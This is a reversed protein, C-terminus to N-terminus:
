KQRPESALEVSLSALYAAISLMDDADLKAVVPKMQDTWEGSRFGHQM